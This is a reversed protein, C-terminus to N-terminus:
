MYRNMLFYFCTDQTKEGSREEYLYIAYTSFYFLNYKCHLILSLMETLYLLAKLLTIKFCKLSIEMLLYLYTYHKFELSLLKEIIYLNWQFQLM